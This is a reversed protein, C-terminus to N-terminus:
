YINCFEDFKETNKNNTIEEIKDELSKIKLELNKVKEELDENNKKLINIENLKFKAYFIFLNYDYNIKEDELFKKASTMFFKYASNTTIIFVFYPCSIISQNKKKFPSLYIHLYKENKSYLEEILSALINYKKIQNKKENMQSSLNVCAEIIVNFKDPM